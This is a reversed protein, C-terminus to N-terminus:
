IVSFRILIIRFAASFCFLFEGFSSGHSDIFDSPLTSILVKEFRRNSQLDRFIFFNESLVEEGIAKKFEEEQERELVRNFEKTLDRITV